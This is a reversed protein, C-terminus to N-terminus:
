PQIKKLIAEVQSDSAHWDRLKTRLLEADQDGVPSRVFDPVAPNGVKLSTLIEIRRAPDAIVELHTIATGVDGRLIVQAAQEHVKDRLAPDEIKSAFSLAASPDSAWISEGLAFLKECQTPDLANLKGGLWTLYDLEQPRDEPLQDLLKAARGNALFWDFAAERDQTMWNVLLGSIASEDQTRLFGATTVFTGFDFGAPVKASNGFDLKLDEDAIRELLKGLAEPGDKASAVFNKVLISWPSNYTFLDKYAIVFELGRAAHEAPWRYSLNALMRIQVTQIQLSDFWGIAADLDRKMWECFLADMLPGGGGGELIYDPDKLCDDLAARIEAATWKALLEAFPGQASNRAQLLVERARAQIEAPTWRRETPSDGRPQSDPPSKISADPQAMHGSMWVGASLGAAFLPALLKM